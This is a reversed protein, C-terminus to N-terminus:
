NIVKIEVEIGSPLEISGLEDITTPNPDRIELLRSSVRIEFQERSKKDTFTSRQITILRRKTPLPIPGVLRAGSRRVITQIDTVSKDLLKPDFAQLKIRISSGGLTNVM